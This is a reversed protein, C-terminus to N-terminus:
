RRLIRHTEVLDVVLDGPIARLFLIVELIVQDHVRNGDNDAVTALEIQGIMVMQGIGQPLRGLALVLRTYVRPVGANSDGHQVIEGVQLIIM